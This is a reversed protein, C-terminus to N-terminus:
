RIGTTTRIETGARVARTVPTKEAIEALKARQDDDVGHLTIRRDIWRTDRDKVVYTLTVDVGALPWSNREAYMRLTIATCAGLGSLLLGFPAPGTDAGGQGAPEDARLAHGGADIRVGYPKDESTVTATAITHERDDSMAGDRDPISSTRAPRTPLRLAGGGLEEPAPKDKGCRDGLWALMDPWWSGTGDRRDEALGGPRCPHETIQYRAKPNGPPNVLAAIHGSTSLIFRSTGGLLQTSRYCNQWPTIHDAIGAVLYADTDVQSLDIATGLITLSGPTLLKNDMALDVFDAHLGAAMRTTDANWFVDFAPPKQGLLYNNVWYNWILDGPRLWALMEALDRGDLYGRRRSM